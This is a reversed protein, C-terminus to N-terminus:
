HWVHSNWLDRGLVFAGVGVVIEGAIIKPLQYETESIRRGGKIAFHACGPYKGTRLSLDLYLYGLDGEEPHYLSMKLVDPHWSEGPILPVSRFTVGFLSEVLVRLGEICQQLPFYSAVVKEANPRVMESMELLFSMVVDPSSAMNPNVAFEAYSKCGMIQAIEHRTAILKDLVGINASPVSNGQIYAM